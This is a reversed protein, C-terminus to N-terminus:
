KNIETKIEICFDLFHKFTQIHDSENARKILQYVYDPETVGRPNKKTYQINREALMESLYTEHFDTHTEYGNLKGMQEPDNISVNYFSIFEQLLKSDPNRKCVKSNGLFWTEICRNQVIIILKTNSNLVIKYKKIFELVENKREEATYEDADLCIVFYDFKNILNIEEISNRLHNNLLSPYGNGSFIFYNNKEILFANKVESLEPLLTSLWQPYVKKETRRGEVLFYLNM